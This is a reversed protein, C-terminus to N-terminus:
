MFFRDLSFNIMALEALTKASGLRAPLDDIQEITFMVSAADQPAVALGM